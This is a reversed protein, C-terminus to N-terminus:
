TAQYRKMYQAKMPGCKECRCNRKGTVGGGHPVAVGTGPQSPPLGKEKRIKARRQGYTVRRVAKCLDCTCKSVGYPAQGHENLVRTGSDPELGHRRRARYMFTSLQETTAFGLKQAIQAYSMKTKLLRNYRAVLRIREKQKRETATPQKWQNFTGEAKTLTDCKICMGSSLCGIRVKCKPCPASRRPQRPM